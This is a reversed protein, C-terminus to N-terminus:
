IVTDHTYPVSSVISVAILSIRSILADNQGKTHVTKAGITKDSIYNAIFGTTIFWILGSNYM